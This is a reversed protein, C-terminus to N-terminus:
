KGTNIIEKFIQFSFEHICALASPWRSQGALMKRHTPVGVPLPEVSPHGWGGAFHLLWRIQSAGLKIEDDNKVLRQELKEIKIWLDKNDIILQKM